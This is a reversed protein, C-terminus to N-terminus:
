ELAKRLVTVQREITARSPGGIAARREVSTEFSFVDKVDAEFLNHLSKFDEVSLENIGCARAEALAVARGSIHHTERFPLGKRVLYEALDTALLDGTLAAQMKQPHITLTAIVGEAIRLCASITDVADFLPEKDEQLDKNYTSPLGKLTMLFGAMQASTLNPYNLIILPRVDGFIRGSKGRLLELSDPNKKQPM